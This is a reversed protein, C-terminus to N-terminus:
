TTELQRRVANLIGVKITKIMVMRNSVTQTQLNKCVTYINNYWLRFSDM